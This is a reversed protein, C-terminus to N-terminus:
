ENGVGGTEVGEPTPTATGNQQGRQRQGNQEIRDLEVPMMRQELPARELDDSTSAMRLKGGM